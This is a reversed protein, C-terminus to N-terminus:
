LLLLVDATQSDAGLQPRQVNPKANSRSVSRDLSGSDNDPKADSRSVSRDFARTDGNSRAIPRTIPRADPGAGRVLM